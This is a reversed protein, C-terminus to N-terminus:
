LVGLSTPVTIVMKYVPFSLGVSIFYTVVLHGLWSEFMPLSAGCHQRETLSLSPLAGAGSSDLLLVAFSQIPPTPHSPNNLGLSSTIRM